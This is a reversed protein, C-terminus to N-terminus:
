NNNADPNNNNNGNNNRNRNPRFRRKKNPNPENESSTPRNRAPPSSNELEELTRPRNERNEDPRNTKHRNQPQVPRKNNPRPPRNENANDMNEGKPRNTNGGEKKVNDVADERKSQGRKLFAELKSGTEETRNPADAQKIPSPPHGETPENTKNKPNPRRDNSKDFPKPANSRDKPPNEVRDNSKPRNEIPKDGEIPSNVRNRASNEPRDKPKPRNDMPRDAGAPNNGRNKAPNEPRDNPKPRNDMPKDAGAPNNSRNRTQNEPRDNPKPRNDMPKDAGAPREGRNRAPNEPRDNSKARNEMPRDASIPREGRNKTSNEPRNNPNPKKTSDDSNGDKADDAKKPRKKRSKKQRDLDSLEISGAGDEYDPEEDEADVVIVNKAALELPKKGKRNLALIEKVQHVDLAYIKAFGEKKYTYFMTKKFIDTKMLIAIGAETELKEARDPFDELADMYTDLEFNLCCKLRGCQGSLKAQNIALNQYRAAATSVSKFDSLWTSCCLERGCSGIGGIRASEQRAGIQRMEIKVRFDKAFLKILERFDIRGDATYYFTAKRKDGQFEVDGIKMDLNLERVIARARTLAEKESMRAENLREMDRENAKRIISSVLAPDKFRKKKMQLKVLEGTLSVRGIDFGTGSEVIVDDGKAIPFYGTNLFFGKRSGSKFSVEVLNFEEFDPLKIDSLWDFTNLRNCSCSGKSGCGSVGSASSGCGGTSCTACGM